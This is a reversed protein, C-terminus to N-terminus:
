TSQRQDFHSLIIVGFSAMEEKADQVSEKSAIQFFHHICELGRHTTGPVIETKM